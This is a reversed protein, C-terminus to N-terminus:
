SLAIELDPGKYGVFRQNHLPIETDHHEKHFVQYLTAPTKQYLFKQKKITAELPEHKFDLFSVLHFHKHMKKAYIFNLLSSFVQIKDKESLRHALELHTLYLVKLEEGEYIAKKGLLPLIIQGLIKLPWTLKTVIPRRTSGAWPCFLGLVEGEENKALIFSHLHLAQWQNLRRDLEDANEEHFYHGLIKDKNQKRLFKKLKPYDEASAEVVVIKQGHSLRTGARQWFWPRALLHIAHYSRMPRYIINGKNQTFSRIASQNEDLIASYFYRCSGLEEIHPVSKLLDEYFHRWALRTQRSIKPGLRLDGLYAAATAESKLYHTRICLSAVGAIEGNPNLFLFVLGRESQGEILAFFNPARDYFLSLSTTDMPVTKFFDLIAQNDAHSAVKVLPHREIFDRFTLASKM